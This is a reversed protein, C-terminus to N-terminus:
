RRARVRVVLNGRQEGDIPWGENPVMVVSARPPVRVSIMRETRDLCELEVTCGEKAQRRSITVTAHLDNRVRRYLPHRAEKVRLVIENGDFKYILQDAGKTGPNVEVALNDRPIKPLCENWLSLCTGLGAVSAGVTSWVMSTTVEHSDLPERCKSLGHRSTSATEITELLVTSAAAVIVHAICSYVLWLGFGGRVTAVVRGWPRRRLSFNFAKSGTFVVDLPVSLHM